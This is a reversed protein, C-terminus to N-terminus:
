SKTAWGASCPGALQALKGGALCSVFRMSVADPRCDIIEIAAAPTNCYCGGCRALVPYYNFAAIRDGKGTIALAAQGNLKRLM